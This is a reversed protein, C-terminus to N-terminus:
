NKFEYTSFRTSFGIAIADGVVLGIKGQSIPRLEVLPSGKNQHLRCSRELANNWGLM